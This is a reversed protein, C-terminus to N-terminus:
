GLLTILREAAVHTVFKKEGAWSPLRELHFVGNVFGWNMFGWNM